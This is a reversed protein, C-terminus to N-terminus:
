PWNITKLGLFEVKEGPTGQAKARGERGEGGQPLAHQNPTHIDSPLYPRYVQPTSIRPPTSPHVDAIWVGWTSTVFNDQWVLPPTALYPSNDYTVMGQIDM